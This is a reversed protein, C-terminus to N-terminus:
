RIATGVGPTPGPTPDGAPLSVEITGDAVRVPFSETARVAPGTRVSGDRVSFRAGHRPCEVCGGRVRGEGIPKRDHTCFDAIAFVEGGANCVLLPRGAVTVARCRGAPVSGLPLAPHWGGPESM